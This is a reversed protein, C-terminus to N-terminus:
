PTHGGAGGAPASANEIREVAERLGPREPDLVLAHRAFAAAPTGRGLALEAGALMLWSEAHAPRRGLTHRLAASARELRLQRV